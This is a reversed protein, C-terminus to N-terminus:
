SLLDCSICQSSRLRLHFFRIARGAHRSDGLLRSDDIHPHRRAPHARSVNSLEGEISLTFYRLRVPRYTPPEQASLSSSHPIATLNSCGSRITSLETESTIQANQSEIMRDALVDHREIIM